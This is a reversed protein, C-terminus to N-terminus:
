GREYESKGLNWENAVQPRPAIGVYYADLDTFKSDIGNGKNVYFMIDKSDNKSLHDVYKQPIYDNAYYYDPAGFQHLMEHAFTAAPTAIGDYRYYINSYEVDCYSCNNHTITWPKVNDKFETNLFFM